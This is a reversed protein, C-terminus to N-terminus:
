TKFSFNKVETGELIMIFRTTKSSKIYNILESLILLSTQLHYRFSINKCCRFIRNLIGVLGSQPSHVLPNLRQSWFRFTEPEFLVLREASSLSGVWSAGPSGRAPCTFVCTILMLRTLSGGQYHSLTPRPAVM